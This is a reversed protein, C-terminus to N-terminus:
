EQFYTGTDNEKESLAARLKRRARTVANEASRVGIGLREAIESRDLGAMHMRLVSYEMPSLSRELESFLERSIVISEPTVNDEGESDDYGDEGECLRNMRAAATKMRNTVCAYAFSSFRSGRKPDFSRVANMFGLLGEQVFDDGSIPLSGNEATRGFEAARSKIFAFYRYILETVYPASIRSERCKEVLEEDSCASLMDSNSFESREDPIM